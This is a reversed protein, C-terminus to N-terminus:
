LCWRSRNLPCYPTGMTSRANELSERPNCGMFVWKKKPKNNPNGMPTCQYPSMWSDPKWGHFGVKGRQAAELKQLLAHSAQVKHSVAQRLAGWCVYFGVSMEKPPQGQMKHTSEELVYTMETRPLGPDCVGLMGKWWWRGLSNRFLFQQNHPKPCTELTHQFIRLPQRNKGIARNSSVMKKHSVKPSKRTTYFHLKRPTAPDPPLNIFMMYIYICTYLIYTRYASRYMFTHLNECVSCIKIYHSNSHILDFTM